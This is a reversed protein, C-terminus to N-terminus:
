RLLERDIQAIRDTLKRREATLRAIRDPDDGAGTWINVREDWVLEDRGERHRIKRLCTRCVNYINQDSEPDFDEGQEEGPFVGYNSGCILVGEDAYHVKRADVPWSWGTYIQGSSPPQRRRRPKAATESM